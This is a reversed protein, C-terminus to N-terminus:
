VTVPELIVRDGRQLTEAILTAINRQVMSGNDDLEGFTAHEDIQIRIQEHYKRAGPLALRAEVYRDTSSREGHRIYTESKVEIFLKM